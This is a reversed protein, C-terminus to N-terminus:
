AKGEGINISVTDLMLTQWEESTQQVDQASASFALMTNTSSDCQAGGCVGPLGREGKQGNLGPFGRRGTHTLIYMFIQTHPARPRTTLANSVLDFPRPEIREASVM